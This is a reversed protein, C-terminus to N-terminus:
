RSLQPGSKAGHPLSVYRLVAILGLTSRVAMSSTRLGELVAGVSPVRRRRRERVPRGLSMFSSHRNSSAM